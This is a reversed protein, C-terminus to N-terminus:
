LISARIATSKPSVPPFAHNSVHISSTSLHQTFRPFQSPTPSLIRQDSSQPALPLSSKMLIYTRSYSVVHLSRSHRIPRGVTPGVFGDSPPDRYTTTPTHYTEHTAEPEKTIRRNRWCSRSCALFVLSVIVVSFLIGFIIIPILWTGFGHGINFSPAAGAM